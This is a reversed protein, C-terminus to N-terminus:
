IKGFKNQMIDKLERFRHYRFQKKSYEMTAVTEYFSCIRWDHTNKIKDIITNGFKRYPYRCLIANYYCGLRIINDQLFCLEIVKDLTDKDNICRKILRIGLSFIRGDDYTLFKFLWQNREMISINRFTNAILNEYFSIRMPNHTLLQFITEDLTFPKIM